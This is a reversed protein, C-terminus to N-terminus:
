RNTRYYAAWESPTKPEDAQRVGDRTANVESIPEPINGYKKSGSENMKLRNAIKKFEHKLPNFDANGYVDKYSNGTTELRAAESPNASLYALVKDADDSNSAVIRLAPLSSFNGVLSADFGDINKAGELKKAFEGEIHDVVRQTEAQHYADQQQKQYEEMRRGVEANVVSGIDANNANQHSEPPKSQETQYREQAERLGKEYAKQKQLAVVKNAEDKTIYGSPASFQQPSSTTQEQEFGQAQSNNSEVPASNDVGLSEDTM